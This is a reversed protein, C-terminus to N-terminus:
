KKFNLGINETRNLCGQARLRIPNEKTFVATTKGRAQAQLRLRRFVAV